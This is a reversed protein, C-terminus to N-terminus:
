RQRHVPIVGAAPNSTQRRVAAAQRPVHERSRCVRRINPEGERCPRQDPLRRHQKQVLRRGTGLPAPSDKM